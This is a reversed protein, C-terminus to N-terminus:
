VEHRNNAFRIAYEIAHSLSLASATGKYAKGMATGHDVSARIIPLGLTVNVGAVAAWAQKEKDYVFGEMKLPIHGQDHYMAVVIDYWGGRAKPFVTDPPVPGDVHLGSGRAEEIAPIIEEIEETGFMGSEGSHPNLGAVAIKPAAIGLAKCANDALMIVELVRQKKVLDCAQRLSVHTSVHVVRLDDHALMMSYKGTNTLDAYIETHGSYDHGAMNIAEKSLANTVTADVEGKMALDIVKEVYRFAAEGTKASIKGPTIDNLTVIGMDLVDITGYTFLAESVCSVANIMLDKRGAVKLTEVMICKEGIIIPRCTDYVSPEGLAKVSIEPGISAPDGM